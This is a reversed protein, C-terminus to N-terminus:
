SSATLSMMTLCKNFLYCPLYRILIFKYTQLPTISQMITFTSMTQCGFLQTVQQVPGDETIQLRFNRAFDDRQCHLIPETYLQKLIDGNSRNDIWIYLIM